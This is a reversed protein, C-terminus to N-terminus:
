GHGHAKRLLDFVWALEKTITSEEALFLRIGKGDGWYCSFVRAQATM